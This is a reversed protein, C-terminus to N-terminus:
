EQVVKRITWVQSAIVDLDGAIDCFEDIGTFPALLQLARRIFFLQYLIDTM